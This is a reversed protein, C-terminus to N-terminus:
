KRLRYKEALKELVSLFNEPISAAIFKQYTEAQMSGLTKEVITSIALQKKDDHMANSVLKFQNIINSGVMMDIMETVIKQRSGPVQLEPPKVQWYIRSLDEVAAHLFKQPSFPGYDAELRAKAQNFLASSRLLKSTVEPPLDINLIKESVLKVTMALSMEHDISNRYQINGGETKVGEMPRFGMKYYFGWSGFASTLSIREVHEDSAVKFVINLLRTGATKPLDNAHLQFLYIHKEKPYHYFIFDQRFIQITRDNIQLIKSTDTEPVQVGYIFMSNDINKKELILESNFFPFVVIEAEVILSWLTVFIILLKALNTSNHILRM